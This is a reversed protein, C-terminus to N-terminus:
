DAAPAAAGTPSKDFHLYASTAAVMAVASLGLLNLFPITAALQLGLGTGFTRWPNHRLLLLRERLAVGRAAAPEQLWVLAAVVSGFLFTLPLGAYPILVLGLAVPLAIGAFMLLQASEILRGRRVPLQAATAGLMHREAARRIPEQAFGALADLVPPGAALWTALLWLHPGHLTTAERDNAFWREYAPLLWLWGAAGLLGVAFLNAAVPLRLIGVFEREFLVAFVARRVDDFGRLVDLLPNRRGGRLVSRRGLIQGKGGCVACGGPGMAYGCTGCM